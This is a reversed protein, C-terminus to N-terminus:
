ELGRQPLLAPADLWLGVALSELPARTHLELVARPARVLTLMTVEDPVCDLHWMADGGFVCNAILCDHRMWGLPAPLHDRATALSRQRINGGVAVLHADLTGFLPVLLAKLPVRSCSAVIVATVPLHTSGAHPTAQDGCVTVFMLRPRGRVLEIPDQLFGALCCM